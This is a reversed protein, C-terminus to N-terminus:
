FCGRRHRHRQVLTWRCKASLRKVSATALDHSRRTVIHEIVVDQRASPAL